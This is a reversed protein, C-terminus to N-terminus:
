KIHLEKKSKHTGKIFEVSYIGKELYHKGNKALNSTSKKNKRNYSIIGKADKELTYNILNFGADLMGKKSFLVLGKSNQIQMEYNGSKGAYVTFTVEPEYADRWTSYSSGWQNSYKIEKPELLILEENLFTKNVQKFAALDAKYISRGHTGVLLHNAEPQIVLDHVAANTLGSKFPMWKQGQDFSVYVSNDTGLYLIQSNTPDERLVNIPSDPLNSNISKWTEGKDDSMYVYPRFDDKRYGNLTLYVRNKAHESAVVRSVWLNQPLQDSIRSWSVGGDESRSVIGDDSGTYLFGFKFSSEALTTLTGFAVNGKKGGQTLDESIAEWDDGQNMSRHLKNGGLYLIDQNHSSLLIPTQWNFRYPSEGLEHKPQIYTRKENELDLRFYNGFQYGTYVINSNRKDIQIQMGDGGMISTWPNHGSSQWREDNRANHAGKWVGNDQLGGYVNYPKEYDINIAYFQGVATSNNKMWHEGDDYTINVGGDNGNILHGPKDPNIWLAHHDSHVNPKGIAKFNEGGDNSTLIPVGYIYIKKQDKPAVHIHGFYYGYSYYLDDIYGQHTKAWSKGGDSSKFVEAGVVPTDFLLANADELYTALDKPIVLGNRVSNKINRARYKEQFNNEKLFLDLAKDEIALFVEKSMNKFDNKSLGKTKEKAEEPRRFQSDHIAYIINEDYVALGIRGVGEGTAFGSATTSILNWTKGADISKYVGSSAGNGRFNWAKRDKEWASAYQINFDEPVSSMDIIGATDNVFLTQEWTNGGNETRYVGREDNPTYLHGTVGVVLEDPNTPNILIKGIHHSDELGKIEWTKGNDSSKLIGIGAYSSRSSNNEGTGVWLTRTPWHVAIEGINQTPANDTISKFSIGNDVTHWIGGSAYAAYFETPENPNVELAVIRGSMVKPGINEFPINQVISNKNLNTQAGLVMLTCLMLITHFTKM